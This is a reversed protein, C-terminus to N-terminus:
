SILKGFILEDHWQGAILAHQRLSGEQQMGLKNLIAVSAINKAYCYATIKHPKIKHNLYDFLAKAAEFGYGQGHYNEDFRYGMEIRQHEYSEINFCVMGIVTDSAILKVTMMVWEKEKGQWSAICKQIKEETESLAEVPRIYHMLKANQEHAVMVDFDQESVKSMSLRQTAIVLTDIQEILETVNM